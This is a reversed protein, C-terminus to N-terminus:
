VVVAPDDSYRGETLCEFYAEHGEETPATIPTGTDIFGCALATPGGEALCNTDTITNELGTKSAFNVRTLNVERRELNAERRDATKILAVGREVVFKILATHL